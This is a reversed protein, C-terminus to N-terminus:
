LLAVNLSVLVGFGQLLCNLDGMNVDVGVTHVPHVQQTTTPNGPQIM